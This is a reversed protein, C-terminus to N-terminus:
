PSSNKRKENYESFNKGRQKNFCIPCWTKDYYVNGAKTTWQHGQACEFSIPTFRDTYVKTLVKGGHKQAIKQFLKISHKRRKAGAKKHYCISCWSGNTIANPKAM